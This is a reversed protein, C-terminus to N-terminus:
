EPTVSPLEAQATTVYATEMETTFFPYYRIAKEGSQKFIRNGWAKTIASLHVVM